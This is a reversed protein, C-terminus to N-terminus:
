TTYFEVQMKTGVTCRGLKMDTNGITAVVAEAGKVFLTVM